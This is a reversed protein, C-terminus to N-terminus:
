NAAHRLSPVGHLLDYIVVHMLGSLVDKNVLFKFCHNNQVSTPTIVFTLYSRHVGVGTRANRGKDWKNM